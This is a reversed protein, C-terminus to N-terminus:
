HGSGCIVWLTKSLDLATANEVPAQFCEGSVSDIFNTKYTTVPDVANAFVVWVENKSVISVPRIVVNESGQHVGFIEHLL